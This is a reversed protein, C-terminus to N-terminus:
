DAKGNEAEYEKTIRWVTPYSIGVVQVIKNRSMGQRFLTNIKDRTKQSVGRGKKTPIIDESMDETEKNGEVGRKYDAQSKFWACKACDRVKLIRCGNETEDKYAFCDKRRMIGM